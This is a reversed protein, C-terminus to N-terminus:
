CAQKEAYMAQDAARLLTAADRGDNPFLAIGIAASLQYGACCELPRAIVAQLRECIGVATGLEAVDPLIIVFEDGGWRALMDQGRLMKQMRAAVEVLANDGTEHGFHDNLPKFKNLDIFLVTFPQGSKRRQALLRNLDHELASRSSVGTLRDTLLEKHMKRFSRALIGIEDKRRVQQYMEGPLGKGLETVSGVARSLLSVDEAVRGLMLMGLPVSLLIALVGCYMVLVVNNRVGGLIDGAPVAIVAYWDLGAKDVIHRISVYAQQGGVDDLMLSRVSDDPLGPLIQQLQLWAQSALQEGSQAVNVRTYRGDAQRQVHDIASAAVLQGDPEVIFTQSNESIALGQIFRSLGSLFIDTGVVGVTQGERDLVQRVRSNVLEGSDFDLYIGTWKHEAATLGQQYWFRERPDFDVNEVFRYEMESEIGYMLYFKRPVEAVEKIRLQASGDVLRQLALGQGHKNGYYVLDSSDPFLTTAAYFRSILDGMVPRIDEAITIGRPFATELVASAGLMHQKVAEAMRETREIMLQETLDAVSKSGGWWLLGGLVLTLLFIVFVFPLMLRLRLSRVRLYRRINRRFIM